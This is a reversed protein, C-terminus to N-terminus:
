EELDKLSDVTKWYGEHCYTRLNINPFVNYELSGKEPLELSRELVYIGTNVWINDLLPKERFEKVMGNEIVISGFPLRARSLCIFNGQIKETEKIDIDNLCDVNAALVRECEVKKMALRLAGATGINEDERSISIRLGTDLTSVYKEIKESMHGTALIIKKINNKSLWEIQHLLLPKGKYEVLAKPTNETLPRLRTGKGGCLLIAEKIEM